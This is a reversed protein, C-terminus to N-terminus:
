KLNLLTQQIHAFYSKNGCSTKNYYKNLTLISYNSTKLKESHKTQGHCVEGNIRTLCLGCVDM